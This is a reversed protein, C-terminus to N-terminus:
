GLTPYPNMDNYRWSRVESDSPWDPPSARLRAFVAETFLNIDPELFSGCVAGSKMAPIGNVRDCLDGGPSIEGQSADKESVSRLALVAYHPVTIMSM